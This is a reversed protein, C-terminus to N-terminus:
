HSIRELSYIIKSKECFIAGQSIYTRSAPTIPDQRSLGVRRGEGGAYPGTLAAMRDDWTLEGQWQRLAARWKASPKPFLM